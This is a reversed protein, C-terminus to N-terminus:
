KKKIILDGLMEDIKQKINYFSHSCGSFRNYEVIIEDNTEDYYLRVSM